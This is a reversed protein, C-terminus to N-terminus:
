GVRSTLHSRVALKPPHFTLPLPTHPGSTPPLRARHVVPATRRGRHGAVNEVTTPGRDPEPTLRRCPPPPLARLPCLTHSLSLGGNNLKLNRLSSPSACSMSFRAEEARNGLCEQHSQILKFYECAERTSIGSSPIYSVSISVCQLKTQLLM